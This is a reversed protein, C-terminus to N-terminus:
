WMNHRPPRAPEQLVDLAGVHQCREGVQAARAGGAQGTAICFPVRTSIDSNSESINPRTGPLGRKAWFGM